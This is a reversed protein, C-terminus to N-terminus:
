VRAPLVPVSDLFRVRIGITFIHSKLINTILSNNIVRAADKETMVIAKPTPLADFLQGIHEFDAASFHHHDAFALPTITAAQPRLHDYLGQPSVIGTVVLLHPKDTPAFPWAANDALARPPEYDFTSFHLQQADRLHLRRRWRAHDPTYDTPCKSVIICDARQLGQQSERLRGLPLYDDTDTPRNYDILVISFSPKVFRHQFADDLLIIDPPQPLQLLQEIGHARKEDVAVIAQPFKHHMQFPEDGIDRATTHADALIFGRTRRKYGRSLVAVRKDAFHRILYETHPTKGTGGVTINGICIVPLDFKASRLLGCDFCTNRWRVVTGFLKAPLFLVIKQLLNMAAFNYFTTSAAFLTRCKKKRM